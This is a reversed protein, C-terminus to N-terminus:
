RGKWAAAIQALRRSIEEAPLWRGRVMVGAQRHVSRIDELPNGDLLLLDARKGVEVTGFEASRGFFEAPNRTAASLVTWNSLGAAVMADMEHALSFGPVSFAQPSDSGLLLRAGGDSLARLLSDRLAALDAPSRSMGLGELALRVPSRGGMERVARTWRDVLQRPMYQVEPRDRLLEDPDRLGLLTKWVDMTPCNWIGAKTTLQVLEQIRGRDRGIDELYGDLHEISQGSEIAHRVGVSPPVHGSIPMHLERATRLIADYTERNMGPFIKLVDFGAAHYQRVKAEGDQPNKTNDGNFPPGVAFLTPGLLLGSAIEKRYELQDPKGLMARVTTAGTLVYLAMVADLTPDDRSPVHAHMEAIGPMLYKGKGNVRIAGAPVQVSNSPGIEAIKGDRVVVTQRDLVRERDMPVVTVSDFAVVTSDAPAPPTPGQHPLASPLLLSTLALLLTSM